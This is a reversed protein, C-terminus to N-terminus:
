DLGQGSGSDHLAQLCIRRHNNLGPDDPYISLRRNIDELAASYQHRLIQIGEVGLAAALSDPHADLTKKYWELAKEQDGMWYYVEGINVLIMPQSPDLLLAKQLESRAEEYRHQYMLLHGLWQHAVADNPSLHVAIRNEHEAKAFQMAYAYFSALAAHPRGAGPDLEIARRAAAIGDQVFAGSEPYDNGVLVAYSDALGIWADTYGPARDIAQRYLVVSQKLSDLTRQNWLSRGTKVLNIIEPPPQRPPSSVFRSIAGVTVLILIVIAAAFTPGMPNRKRRIESAAPVPVPQPLHEHRFVPVYTGKPVEIRIPDLKGPAEYYDRLKHRLRSAEVRVINDSAPDFADGRDFVEIAIVREKIQDTRGQLQAEVVFQLFRSLRKSGSFLTSGLIRQVQIRVASADPHGLQLM